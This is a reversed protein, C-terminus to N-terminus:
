NRRTAKDDSAAQKRCYAKVRDIAERKAEPGLESQFRLGWRNSVARAVAERVAVKQRMGMSSQFQREDDLFPLLLAMSRGNCIQGATEARSPNRSELFGAVLGEAQDPFRQFALRLLMAGASTEEPLAALLVKVRDLILPDDAVAHAATVLYAEQSTARVFETLSVLVLPDRSSAIARLRDLSIWDFKQHDIEGLHRMLLPGYGRNALCQLGAPVYMGKEPHGRLLEEVARGVAPRTDHTMAQLLETREEDTAYERVLDLSRVDPGCRFLDVLLRRPHEGYPSQLFLDESGEAEEVERLDKFLQARVGESATKGHAAVFEEFARRLETPEADRYLQQRCFDMALSGDITPRRLEEPVVEDLAEPYYFALRLYAGVRRVGRDPHRFDAVLSSRHTARTLGSWEKKLQLRAKSSAHISYWRMGVPGGWDLSYFRRNVIQGLLEFCVDGVTHQRSQPPGPAPAERLTTGFPPELRPNRNFDYPGNQVEAVLLGTPREDDLHAILSPIASAGRRILDVAADQAERLDRQAQDQPVPRGNSRGSVSPLFDSGVDGSSTAVPPWEFRTLLDIQREIQDDSQAVSALLAM